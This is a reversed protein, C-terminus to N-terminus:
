LSGIPVPNHHVAVLIHQRAASAAAENLIELQQAALFGANSGAVTSDLMVVRWTGIDIVPITANPFQECLIKPTDHNGPLIMIKCELSKTIELFTEYSKQSSDQSIDGTILM